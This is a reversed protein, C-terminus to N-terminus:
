NLLIIAAVLQVAGLFNRALKDYRTAIGRYHKIKNFFREVLNRECYLVFDCDRKVKRNAKPPIVPTIARQNLADILPDADYAKDGLLAGPDVNELLPQACTLDHAQGPTLM